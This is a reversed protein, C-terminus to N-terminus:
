AKSGRIREYAHTDITPLALMGKDVLTMKGNPLIVEVEHEGKEQLITIEDGDVIYKEGRLPRKRM